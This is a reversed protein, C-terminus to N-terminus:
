DEGVIVATLDAVAGANNNTLTLEHNTGSVAWGTDFSRFHLASGAVLIVSSSAELLNNWGNTVSPAVSVTDGNTADAVLDFVQVNTMAAPTGFVDDDDNPSLTATGSPAIQIDRCIVVQNGGGGGVPTITQSVEVNCCVPGTYPAAPTSETNITLQYTSAM